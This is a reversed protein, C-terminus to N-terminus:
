ALQAPRRLKAASHGHGPGCSAADRRATLQVIVLLLSAIVMQLQYFTINSARAKNKFFIDAVDSVENAKFRNLLTPAVIINM